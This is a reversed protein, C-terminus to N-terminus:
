QSFGFGHKQAWIIAECRSSVALKSYLTSIYRRVTQDGLCFEAAIRTNDWGCAIADLLQRERKTLHPESGGTREDARVHTLQELVRRSLWRGGQMVSRIATVVVETAEDKLVYGTVGEALMRRIYVEDDYATLIIVKTQPCNARVYTVTEVATAGPMQLDLLLVDPQLEGCRRQAEDGRSAEGVLAIDDAAGLTERVGRLVLPHDDAIVARVIDTM